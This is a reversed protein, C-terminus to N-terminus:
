VSIERIEATKVETSRNERRMTVADDGEEQAGWILRLVSEGGGRSRLPRVVEDRFQGGVDRNRLCCHVNWAITTLTVALM